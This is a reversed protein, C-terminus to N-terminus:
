RPFTALEKLMANFKIAEAENMAFVSAFDHGFHESQNRADVWEKAFVRGIMKNEAITYLYFTTMKMM